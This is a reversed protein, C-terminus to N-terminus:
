HNPSKGSTVVYRRETAFSLLRQCLKSIETLSCCSHFHSGSTILLGAPWHGGQDPHWGVSGLCPSCLPRPCYRPGALLGPILMYNQSFDLKTILGALCPWFHCAALGPVAYRFYQKSVSWPCPGSSLCSGFWYTSPAYM